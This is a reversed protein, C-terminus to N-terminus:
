DTQMGSRGGGQQKPANRKGPQGKGPKGKAAAAAPAPPLTAQLHHAIAALPDAKFAPHELVQQLRQGESV